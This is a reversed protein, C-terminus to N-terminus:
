ITISLLININLHHIKSSKMSSTTSKILFKEHAKHYTTRLNVLVSKIFLKVKSQVKVFAVTQLVANVKVIIGEQIIKKHMMNILKKGM